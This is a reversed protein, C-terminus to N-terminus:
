WIGEFLDTEKQKLDCGHVCVYHEYKFFENLRDRPVRRFFSEPGIQSKHCLLAEFKKPLFDGVDVTTTIKEDPTGLFEPDLGPDQGQQLAMRHMKRMRELSVATYYLKRVQWPAVEKKGPYAPNGALEFARVTVKNAMIHDPHGYLGKENYTAVVQPRIERIIDALHRGATDVDARAFARSDNNKPNGAMGSDRYGLFFTKSVGLVDLANELEKMRIDEMTMEADPAAFDPNNIDGEEGRTCYVVVTEIGMAAYKALIGGTGIAEDDPHAHVAMLTLKNQKM